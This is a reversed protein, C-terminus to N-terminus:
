SLYNINKLHKIRMHAALAPRNKAITPCFKCPISNNLHNTEIHTIINSTKTSSKNCMKCHWLRDEKFMMERIKADLEDNDTVEVSEDEDVNNTVVIETLKSATHM